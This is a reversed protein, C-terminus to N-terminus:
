VIVAFDFAQDTQLRPRYLITVPVAADLDAEV